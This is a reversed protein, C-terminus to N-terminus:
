KFLVPSLIIPVLGEKQYYTQSGAKVFTTEKADYLETSPSPLAQTIARNTLNQAQNSYNAITQNKLISTIASANFNRNAM